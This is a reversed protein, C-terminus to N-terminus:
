RYSLDPPRTTHVVVSTFNRDGEPLPLETAYEPLPAMSLTALIPYASVADLERPTAVTNRGAEALYVGCLGLFLATMAGLAANVLPRPRAPAYSVTPEQAVVVNMLGHQDMADAIQSQDRKEAYLDYNQKAEAAQAELNNFQVNSDQMTALQTKLSVLQALVATRHAATARRAINNEALETRLQQWLPDVDTTVQRADVSASENLAARTSAIQKDLEQVMRDEEKYNTLLATRKNELEVILTSFQQVAQMRPLMTEQTTRRAALDRLATSNAALRTDLETLAATTALLDTQADTINKEVATERQDLANVQHQQQFNVLTQSADEWAKHYREAESAFFASAGLPREMRRHQALYAESLRSLADRAGEPTRALFTVDIVNTKRVPEATLRKDFAAVRGEHMRNAAADRRNAPVQDWTPDAVPDLVDHSRLIEIESNVQTETVDTVMNSTTTREPTVVVNGRANEVLFKMESVYQKSPLFTLAITALVVVLGIGLFFRQHRFLAEVGSRFSMQTEPEPASGAKVIGTQMM